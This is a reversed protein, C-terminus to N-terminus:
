CCYLVPTRLRPKTPLNLSRM